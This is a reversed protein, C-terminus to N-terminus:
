PGKGVRPGDLYGHKKMETECVATVTAIEADTLKLDPDRRSPDIGQDGRTKGALVRGANEKSRHHALVGEEWPLRLFRLLESLTRRTDSILDEFYVTRVELKSAQFKSLAQSKLTWINAAIEIESMASVDLYRAEPLLKGLRRIEGPGYCNIWNDNCNERQFRLRRMSSAVALPNRVVWIISAHPFLDELMALDSTVTPLKYCTVKRAIFDNLLPRAAPVRHHVETEDRGHIRSHGNLALLTLTTGSRQCGLILASNRSFERQAARRLSDKIRPM